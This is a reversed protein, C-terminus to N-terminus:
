SQRELFEMAQDVYEPNLEIGIFQRNLRRCVLGVTGCGFFPDLVFDGPNTGALICPEVLEEPFSAIHNGSSSTSGQMRAPVLGPSKTRSGNKPQPVTPSTQRRSFLCNM